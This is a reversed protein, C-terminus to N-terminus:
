VEKSGTSSAIYVKPQNCNQCGEIWWAWVYGCKPCIWGSYVVGCQGGETTKSVECYILPQM